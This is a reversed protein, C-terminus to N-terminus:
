LDDVDHRGALLTPDRMDIGLKDLVEDAAMAMEPDPSTQLGIIRMQFADSTTPFLSLNDIVFSIATRREDGVGDTMLAEVWEILKRRQPHREIFGPEVLQNVVPERDEDELDSLIEGVLELWTAGHKPLEDLLTERVGSIGLRHLSKLVRHKLSLTERM